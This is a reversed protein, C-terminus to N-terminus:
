GLSTITRALRAGLGTLRRTALEDAVELSERNWSDRRSGGFLALIRPTTM